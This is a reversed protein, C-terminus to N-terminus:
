ARRSWSERRAGTDPSRSRRRDEGNLEPSRRGRAGGRIGLGNPGGRWNGGGAPDRERERDRSGRFEQPPLPAGGRGWGGGGGGRGGRGGGVSEEGGGGGRTHPPAARDGWGHSQIGVPGSVNRGNTPGGSAGAGPPGGAGAPIKPEPVYLSVSLLDGTIFDYEELTKEDIKRTKGSENGNGHTDDLGVDLDMKSERERDQTSSSSSASAFLDRGTFSVLDKSKYLGRQSADVYIHRFSYRALPSRYPGPFSPLLLRILSSPTSSKWGYVQFEDRLPFNGEDFEVLPVHKGKSVFIRILFPSVATEDPTDARIKVPSRSRSASYSRSRSRSPSRPM